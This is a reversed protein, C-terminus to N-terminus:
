LKKKFKEEDFENIKYGETKLADKFENLNNIKIKEKKRKNLTMNRQTM